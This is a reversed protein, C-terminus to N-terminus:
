LCAIPINLGIVDDDISSISAVLNTSFHTRSEIDAM